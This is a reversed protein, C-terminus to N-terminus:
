PDSGEPPAALFRDLIPGAEPPGTVELVVETGTRRVAFRLFPCCEREAAVLRDVRAAVDGPAAFRLVLAGPTATRSRLADARLRDMEDLRGALADAGLSCAIPLEPGTPGSM